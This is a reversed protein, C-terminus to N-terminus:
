KFTLLYFFSFSFITKLGGFLNFTLLFISDNLIKVKLKTRKVQEPMRLLFGRIKM